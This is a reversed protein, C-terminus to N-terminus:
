PDWLCAIPAQLALRYKTREALMRCFLHKSPIQDCCCNIGQNHLVQLKHGCGQITIHFAQQFDGVKDGLYTKQQHNPPPGDPSQSHVPMCFAPAKNFKELPMIKSSVLSGFHQPLVYLPYNYPLCGACIARIM